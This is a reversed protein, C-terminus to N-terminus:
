PVLKGLVDLMEEPTEVRFDANTQRSESAKAVIISIGRGKLAKYADEDTIDDGCFIPAINEDGLSLASLLWLVCKGKDWDVNPQIEFVCKGLTLKLEPHANAIRRATEGVLHKDAAAVNRDHAAVSFKKREIQAGPIDDLFKHLEAAVQSLLESHDGALENPLEHGDPLHIDFGHSGAYTLGVLGVLQEVDERERGSVVAVSYQAALATLVARGHDSLAALEPRAVIPTLTGDFDLFLAPTRNGLFATLQDFNETASPVATAPQPSM